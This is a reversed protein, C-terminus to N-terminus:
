LLGFMSKLKTTASLQVAMYLIDESELITGMTPIFTKNSRSISIVHIEGLSSIERVPYGVLLSPVEIRILNVTGNGIEFVSDLQNYTLLESAREIGWATTSITQIGLRRYIEAKGPDYLRAIVHPVRYINKAVRAIVANIEDSKTCAVIGDVKDINAQKLIDRDFGFGTIKTGTFDNGLADFAQPDSDIVTVQHGKKMLNLALGKGMSGIGVIIVKM